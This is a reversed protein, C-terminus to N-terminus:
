GSSAAILAGIAERSKWSKIQAERRAAESRTPFEESHVLAWPGKRATYHSQGTNHFYLRQDLNDTHGVYFKGSPNQIIYM